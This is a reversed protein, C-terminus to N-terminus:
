NKIGFTINIQYNDDQTILFPEIFMSMRIQLQAKVSERLGSSNVLEFLQRKTNLSSRNLEEEGIEQIFGNDISNIVFVTEGSLIKPEPLGSLIIKIISALM